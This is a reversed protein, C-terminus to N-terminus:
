EIGKEKLYKIIESKLNYGGHDSALGIKMHVIGGIINMDNINYFVDQGM